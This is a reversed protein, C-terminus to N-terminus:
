MAPTNIAFLLIAPTQYPWIPAGTDWGMGTQAIIGENYLDWAMFASSLGGLFFPLIIRYRMKSM